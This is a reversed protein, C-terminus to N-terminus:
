PAGRGLDMPALSEILDRRDARVVLALAGQGPEAPFEAASFVQAIRGELRLRLLGAAALILGDYKGADLQAIRDPVNGRIDATILDPRLQRLREARRASSTGIRAGPLLDRLTAGDRTVLCEWPAFCPTRVVVTLDPALRRPLDKASHLGADVVGSRVADDIDRTFFDEDAVSPLPTKKDRDGPSGFLVSEARAGPFLVSLLSSFEAFQATSLRSGRAGIRLSAPERISGEQATWALTEAYAAREALAIRTAQAVSPSADVFSEIAVYGARGAFRRGNAGSLDILLTHDPLASAVAEAEPDTLRVGLIAADAALTGRSLSAFSGLQLGARACWPVSDRHSFPLPVAGASVLRQAISENLRGCGVLAIRKGALGRLHAEVCAVVEAAWSRDASLGSALRVSAQSRLASVVVRTLAPALNRRQESLASRLQEAVDAEGRLQSDLGAGVRVLHHFAAPGSLLEVDAGRTAPLLSATPPSLAYAERRRCTSFIFASDGAGGLLGGLDAEPVRARLVVLDSVARGSGDLVAAIRDRLDRSERCARGDTHVAVTVGASRHVAPFILNSSRGSSVVCCPIGRARADHGIHLNLEHNDTAAIVLRSGDLAPPTYEDQVWRLQGGAASRALESSLRPSVVTVRGGVRLLASAKRAGIRGGGVVVCPWGSIDLGLPLFERRAVESSKADGIVADM